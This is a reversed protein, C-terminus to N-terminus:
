ENNYQKLLKLLEYLSSSPNKFDTLKKAREIAQPYNSLLSEQNFLHGKKYNPFTKKLQQLLNNTTISSKQEKFHLLFWLEICPNSSLLIVDM